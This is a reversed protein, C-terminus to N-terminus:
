LSESEGALFDVIREIDREEVGNLWINDPFIMINPGDECRDMCGAKSVRVRARLKRDKVADKLKKRLKAGCHGCSVREDKGRDNTCVFLIRDFPLSQKKMITGRGSRTLMACARAPAKEM